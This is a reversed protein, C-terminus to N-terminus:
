GVPDLGPVRAHGDRHWGSVTEDTVVPAPQVLPVLPSWRYLQAADRTPDGHLYTAMRQETVLQRPAAFPGGFGPAYTILGSPDSAPPGVRWKALAATGLPLPEPTICPFLFAVPWDLIATSGPPLIGLMPTLRPVRPLSVVAPPRPGANPAVVALRVTDADRPAMQRDDTPEVTDATVPRRELVRQGSGFELYLADGPQAAGSTTVVVPLAGSRQEPDLRFWATTMRGAVVVGPLTTGGIDVPLTRPTPPGSAVPLLGAAPDTEVSLQQELGCPRGQLTAIGDSALTYSDRHEVATRAFGLVQLALVAVLLVAVLPAPGPVRRPVAVDTAGGARLWATRTLLGLVLLGGAVLVITALPVSGVAPPKTSFSPVFWNSAYPWINYGALVLAGVVTVAGLGAVLQRPRERLTSVRPGASWAVIGLVLVAAGYGAVDGFHQTWKTPSATFTALSILFGLVLRRAPGTAIGTRATRLTWLVGVAALLTVLVAARRGLSGQFSAPELLTSYRAYEEYWEMGGGIVTRVRTAELVGALSQDTVMLLVASAPAAVLAVVLPLVHLDRRARLLRLVPLAAALFPTFAMIGAPTLATTVGAIVLGIALPLVTRVAVAREVALFVALGGVAVWPEPRLGLNLPVWWTALGLAALWPVSRRTSFRGLRPLVLRSLLWWCLLGLLTSPLRMWLTSPSVLSWAYYVDYFWSFPAEPANLWRYVNGIFGNSGISRVIGTIYGDDVTIAGVVWWGGLLAVVAADVPRPVWWRRPLLRVRHTVARDARRLAVLMGLLALACVLGIATKLASITTQFRTDATLGMAVGSPVDSFVGAVDPRVDGEHTLAPAGNLLVDTRQPDSVVELTCAGPPLRVTGLDVGASAVRLDDGTATLRLGHLPEAAPDPRLPVTSVLVRDASPAAAGRPAGEGRAVACSTTVTLDVPQYPMLPIAAPGESATWSYRVDPQHVPAFPFAVAALASILGLAFVARRPGHAARLPPTGDRRDRGGHHPERPSDPEPPPVSRAPSLM